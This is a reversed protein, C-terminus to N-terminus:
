QQYFHDVGVRANNTPAAFIQPWHTWFSWRHINWDIQPHRSRPVPNRNLVNARPAMGFLNALLCHSSIAQAMTHGM